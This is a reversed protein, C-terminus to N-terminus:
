KHPSSPEKREQMIRHKKRNVFFTTIIAALIITLTVVYGSKNATSNDNAITVYVAFCVCVFLWSAIFIGVYAFCGLRVKPSTEPRTSTAPSHNPVDKTM